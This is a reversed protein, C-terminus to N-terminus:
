PCRRMMQMMNWLMAPLLGFRWRVYLLAVHMNATENPNVITRSM